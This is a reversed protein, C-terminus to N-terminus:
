GTLKLLFAELALRKNTNYTIINSWTEELFDVIESLQLITKKSAFKQSEVIVDAFNLSEARSNIKIKILDDLWLLFLEFIGKLQDTDIKSDSIKLENIINSIDQQQNSALNAINKIIQNNEEISEKSSEIAKKISGNSVKIAYDIENSDLENNWNLVEKVIEDSLPQFNVIQCRSKITNIILDISSTLLIIISYPPPEELTKLFANQANINMREANDIIFVKFNGEFPSLYIKPEIEKRIDDIKINKEESFEYLMVDPHILRDIKSCSNCKCGAWEKINANSCNLIKAFELALLKKGIGEKGSFIYSHSVRNEKKSNLLIDKQLEHGLCSKASM